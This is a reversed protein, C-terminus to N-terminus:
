INKNQWIWNLIAFILFGSIVNLILEKLFIFTPILSIGLLFYFVLTGLVILILNNFFFRWPLYKKVLIAIICILSFILIEIEFGPSFKLILGALFTLLVGQWFFSIFFCSSIVAVLALNPQVGFVSFGFAQIVSLVGVLFILSFFKM